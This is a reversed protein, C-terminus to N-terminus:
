CGAEPPKSLPKQYASCVIKAGAPVGAASTTHLDSANRHMKVMLSPM